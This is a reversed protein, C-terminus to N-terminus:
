VVLAPGGDLRKLNNARNVLTNNIDRYGMITYAPLQYYIGSALVARWKDALLYNISIRPSFQNLPNKMSRSFDVGDLRIGAAWGLKSNNNKSVISSFFGYKFMNLSSSFDTTYVGNVNANKQFTANTYRASELGIGFKFNVTEYKSSAIQDQEPTHTVRKEM